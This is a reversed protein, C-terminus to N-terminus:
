VKAGRFYDVREASVMGTNKPNIGMNNEGYIKKM